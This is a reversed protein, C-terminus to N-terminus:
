LKPSPPRPPTAQPNGEDGRGPTSRPTRPIVPSRMAKMMEETAKKARMSKTEFSFPSASAKSPLTAKLVRKIATAKGQSRSSPTSPPLRLPTGEVQGWTMLPTADVGPRILPTTQVLDFGKTVSGAQSRTEDSGNDKGYHRAMIEQYVSELSEGEQGLESLLEPRKRMRTAATSITKANSARGHDIKHSDSASPLLRLRRDPTDAIRPPGGFVREFKGRKRSNEREMMQEFSANDESTVVARYQELSPQGPQAQERVIQQLRTAAAQAGVLDEQELAKLYAEEAELVAIDPYFERRIIKSMGNLYAEEPLVIMKRQNPGVAVTKGLDLLKKDVPINATKDSFKPVPPLTTLDRSPPPNPRRPEMQPLRGRHGQNLPM